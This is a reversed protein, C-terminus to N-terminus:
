SPELFGCNAVSYLHADQRSRGPASASGPYPPRCPAAARASSRGLKGGPNLSVANSRARLNERESESIRDPPTCTAVFRNM